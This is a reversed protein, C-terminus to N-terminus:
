SEMGLATFIYVSEESATFKFYITQLMIVAAVLRLLWAITTKLNSNKMKNIKYVM